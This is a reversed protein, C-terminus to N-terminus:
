WHQQEADRAARDGSSEARLPGEQERLEESRREDREDWEEVVGVQQGEGEEQHKNKEYAREPGREICRLRGDDRLKDPLIFTDNSSSVGNKLPRM